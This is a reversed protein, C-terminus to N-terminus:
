LYSSGIEYPIFREIFDLVAVIQSHRWESEGPYGDITKTLGKKNYFSISWSYGDPSPTGHEDEDYCYLESLVPNIIWAADEPSINMVVGSLTNGNDKFCVSGDKDLKLEYLHGNGPNNRIVIRRTLRLMLHNRKRTKYNSLIYERFDKPIPINYREVYTTLNDDWFYKGDSYINGIGVRLEPNILDVRSRGPKAYICHQKLYDIIIGKNEDSVDSVLDKIHPLSTDGYEYAYCVQINDRKM